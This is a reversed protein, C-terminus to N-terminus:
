GAAPVNCLKPMVKEAFLRMSERVRVSPIRGRRNFELICQYMSSLQEQPVAPAGRVRCTRRLYLDGQGACLGLDDLGRCRDYFGTPCCRAGLSKM